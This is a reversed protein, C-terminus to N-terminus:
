HPHTKAPVPVVAYPPGGPQSPPELVAENRHSFASAPVDALSIGPGEWLLRVIGPSATELSELRLSHKGARLGITGRAYRMANAPSGCVEAFPPGTQAVLEGDLFLRAGDRSLLHLSYGGDAPAEILGEYTAAYHTFAGADAPSPTAAIGNRMAVEKAFVPFDPWSGPYVQYLLGPQTSAKAAAPHWRGVVVVGASAWDQPPREVAETSAVKLLVRFRGAGNRDGDLETGEADPFKHRIVRGTATTGDGFLWTYKVKRGPTPEATVEALEGPQLVARSVQFTAHVSKDAPVFKPEPAGGNVTLPLDSDQAATKQGYKVNQLEVDEVQGNILSSVLPPQDLAWINRFNMGYLSPVEKDMQFLSYWDDMWINEFTFGSHSGKAGKDGWYTFLAFPLGCSGIGSALVDSDRLTFNYSNYTKEPWGARVINSISTSLESNEVLINGV